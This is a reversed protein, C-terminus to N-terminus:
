LRKNLLHKHFEERGPKGVAGRQEDALVWRALIREVPPTGDRNLAREGGRDRLFNKDALPVLLNGDKRAVVLNSFLWELLTFGRGGLRLEVAGQDIM